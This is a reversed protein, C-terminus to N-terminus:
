GPLMMLQMQINQRQLKLTEIRNELLHIKDDAPKYILFYELIPGVPPFALFSLGFCCANPYPSAALEKQDAELQGNVVALRATLAQRSTISDGSALAFAILGITLAISRSLMM